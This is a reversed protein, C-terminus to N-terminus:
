NNWTRFYNILKKQLYKKDKFASLEEKSIRFLHNGQAQQSATVIEFDHYTQQQFSTLVAAPLVDEVLLSVNPGSVGIRHWHPPLIKDTFDAPHNHFWKAPAVVVKEGSPNLWAGWWSFSSNAIIHHRCCHMLQLDRFSNEGKNWDIYVAGPLSLNEKVWLPDDSFVFFQPATVKERIYAIAERYYDPSCIDGFYPRMHPQRYDGRRVHLSVANTSRIHELAQGNQVDGETLPIFQLEQLLDERVAEPYRYEQWHAKWWIKKGSPNEKDTRLNIRFIHRFVEASLYLPRAKWAPLLRKDAAVTRFIRKLEFGGHKSIFSATGDLYVGRGEKKLLYRFFAYQFLQNGLGGQIYVIKM